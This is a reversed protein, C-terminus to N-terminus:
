QKALVLQNGADDMSFGTPRSQRDKSIRVQIKQDTIFRFIMPSVQRNGGASTVVFDLTMPDRSMDARWETKGGLTAGDVVMNGLVMKFTRDSNFVVSATQRAFDTGKWEGISSQEPKRTCSVSLLVLAVLIIRNCRM